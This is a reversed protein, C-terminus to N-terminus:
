IRKPPASMTRIHADYEEKTGSRMPVHVVSPRSAMERRMLGARNMLTMFKSFAKQNGGLADNVLAIVFAERRSIVEGNKGRQDGDLIEKLSIGVPTKPRGGPNGSRGKAFQSHKPPRGYGFGSQQTPSEPQAPRDSNSDRPPETM